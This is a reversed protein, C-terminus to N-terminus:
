DAVIMNAYVIPNEVSACNGRWVSLAGSKERALNLLFTKGLNLDKLPIQLEIGDPSVKSIASAPANKLVGTKLDLELISPKADSDSALYLRILDNTGPAPGTVLGFLNQGDSSLRVRTESDADQKVVYNGKKGEAQLGTCLAADAWEAKQVSGDIKLGAASRPIKVISMADAIDVTKFEMSPNKGNYLRLGIDYKGDATGSKRQLTVDFYEKKGGKLATKLNPFGKWDASPNIVADFEPSVV